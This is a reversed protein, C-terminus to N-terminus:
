TILDIRLILIAFIFLAILFFIGFVLRAFERGRKPLDSFAIVAAIVAILLSFFGIQTM